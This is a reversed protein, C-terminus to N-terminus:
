HLLAADQQATLTVQGLGRGELTAPRGQCGQSTSADDQERGEHGCPRRVMQTQTWVGRKCSCDTSQPGGAGM